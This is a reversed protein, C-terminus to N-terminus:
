GYASLDEHLFDHCSFRVCSGSGEGWEFAASEYECQFLGDSGAFAGGVFRPLFALLSDFIYESLLGLVEFCQTQFYGLYPLLLVGPACGRTDGLGNLM